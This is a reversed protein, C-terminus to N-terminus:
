DTCTSVWTGPLAVTLAQLKVGGVSCTTYAQTASDWGCIKDADGVYTIMKQCASSPTHACRTKILTTPSLERCAKVLNTGGAVYLTLEGGDAGTDKAMWASEVYSMSLDPKGVPRLDLEVNKGGINLMAGVHSLRTTLGVLGLEGPYSFSQGLNNKFTKTTGKPYAGRVLYPMIKQGDSTDLFSRTAANDVVGDKITRYIQTRNQAATEAVLGNMVRQELIREGYPDDADGIEGEIECGGALAMALLGAAALNLRGGTTLARM